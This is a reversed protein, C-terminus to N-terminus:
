FLGKHDVKVEYAILSFTQWFYSMFIINRHLKPNIYSDYLIMLTDKLCIHKGSSTFRLNKIVGTFPRYWPDTTYVRVNRYVRPNTNKVRLIRRGNVYISYWTYGRGGRSNVIRVNAWRNQPLNYNRCYNSNGGVTGCIHLSNTHFFVGPIRYGPRGSNGGTTFHLVSTWYRQTATRKVSFSVSNLKQIMPITRLLKSKKHRIVGYVIPRSAGNSPRTLAKFYIISM